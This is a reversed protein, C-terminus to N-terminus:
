LQLPHPPFPQRQVAASDEYIRGQPIIMQLLLLSPQSGARQSASTPYASLLRWVGSNGAASLFASLVTTFSGASPARNSYSYIASLLRHAAHSNAGYRMNPTLLSRPSLSPVLLSCSCLCCPPKNGLPNGQAQIAFRSVVHSMGVLKTYSSIIIIIMPLYGNFM